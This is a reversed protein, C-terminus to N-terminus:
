VGDFSVVAMGPEIGTSSGKNIFFTNHHFAKNDYSVTAVIAKQPSARVVDLERTLKQNESIAIDCEYSRRLANDLKARLEENESRLNSLERIGSVGNSVARIPWSVVDGVWNAVPLVVHSLGNMLKYDPKDIMIYILFVPLVAATLASKAYSFVKSSITKQNM